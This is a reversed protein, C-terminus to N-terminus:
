PRAASCSTPRWRIRRMPSATAMPPTSDDLLRASEEVYQVRDPNYLVVNRANTNVHRTHKRRVPGSPRVPLAPRRRRRHRRDAQRDHPRRGPRRRRQRQQRARRGPGAPRARGTQRRHREGPRRVQGHSDTGGLSGLNYAGVSLHTADGKLATTERSAPNHAAAAPLVTPLLEYNANYYSMVGTVDGLKDGTTYVGTIGATVGTDAYIQFREPNLDGPSNTLGGRDNAGSAGTGNDPVVFTAGGVSNSVVQVNKVTLLMGEVSEYFDIADHDPNFM